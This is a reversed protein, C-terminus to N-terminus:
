EPTRVFRMHVGALTVEIRGASPVTAVATSGDDLVTFRLAPPDGPQVEWTGSLGSSWIHEAPTQALHYDYRLRWTHDEDVSLSAGVVARGSSAEIADASRLTWRGEVLVAQPSPTADPACGPAASLALAVIATLTLPKM